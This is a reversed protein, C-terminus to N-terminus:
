LECRPASTRFYCRFTPLTAVGLGSFAYLIPMHPIRSRYYAELGVIAVTLYFYALLTLLVFAPWRFSQKQMSAVVGLLAFIITPALYAVEWVFAIVLPLPNQLLRKAAGADARVLRDLRPAHWIESSATALVGVNHSVTSKLVGLFSSVLLSRPYKLLVRRAVDRLQADVEGAPQTGLWHNNTISPPPLQYELAICEQAEDLTLHHEIQYAGAGTFYVLMIADANTLRPVSFTIANRTVWAAVPLSWLVLLVTAQLMRQMICRDRIGKLVLLIAFVFPVYLGVPRTLTAIALLLAGVPLRLRSSAASTDTLLPLLCVLAALNLSLYVPESMAEFNAIALTLDGAFFLSAWFAPRDGFIPRVLKIILLCSLIQILAQAAYIM